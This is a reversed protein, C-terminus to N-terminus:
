SKKKPPYQAVLKKADDPLKNGLKTVNDEDDTYVGSWVLDPMGTRTMEIVLTGETRSVM